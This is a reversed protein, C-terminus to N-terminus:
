RISVPSGGKLGSLIKHMIQQFLAPACALGYYLHELKFLGRHPTNFVTFKQSEDSLRVQTYAEALDIVCFVKAGALSAFIDQPRKLPYVEVKMEPNVTQKYDV